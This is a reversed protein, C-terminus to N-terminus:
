LPWEVWCFIHLNAGLNIQHSFGAPVLYTVSIRTTAATTGINSAQAVLVLGGTPGVMATMDGATSPSNTETTVTVLLGTSGNNLYITGAARSGTVVNQGSSGVLTMRPGSKVSIVNGGQDVTVVANNYNGPSLTSTATAEVTTEVTATGAQLSPVVLRRTPNASGGEFQRTIGDVDTSIAPLSSIMVSSQRLHQPLVPVLPQQPVVNQVPSYRSQDLPVASNRLSPVLGGSEAGHVEIEWPV